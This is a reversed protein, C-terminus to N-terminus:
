VLLIKSKDFDEIYRRILQYRQGNAEYPAGMFSETFADSAEIRPYGLGLYISLANLDAESEDDINENMYFHSFEHLLIVIRMPVSMPDFKKMSVQIHGDDKSIRACTSLEKGGESITPMYEITYRGDDSKYTGSPLIGANYSFRQCFDIYSMLPQNLIDVIDFRKELPLRFIKVVKFGDSNGTNDNYVSLLGNEGCLPINIYITRTGNVDAWRNTLLTRVQDADKLVYRINQPSATQVTVGLVFEEKNLPVQFDM